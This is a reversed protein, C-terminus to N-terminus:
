DIPAAGFVNNALVSTTISVVHSRGVEDNILYVGNKMQM